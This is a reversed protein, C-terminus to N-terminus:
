ILSGQKPPAGSQCVKYNKIVGQEYLYAILQAISGTHTTRYMRSIRDVVTDYSIGLAAAIAVYKRGSIMLQIINADLTNM